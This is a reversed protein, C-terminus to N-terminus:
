AWSASSALRTLFKVEDALVRVTEDVEAVTNDKGFSFRVACRALEAPIGMARLVGSPAEESSGCASGASVAIGRRDLAMILTQGDVGPVAAFVTNPLREAGASFVVAQPLARAFGSEFRTRLETLRRGRADREDRALVAAQGFGVIAAVNETGGRRGKEQGGGHLLPALPVAADVVLAGVGKPGHIKHGSLTMLHAGSAAFDVGLKGAAQVADTHFWAGARRAADSWARVDQVVGTENNAWMVSVLATGPAVEAAARGEGDVPATEV